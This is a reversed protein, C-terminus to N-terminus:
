EFRQKSVKIAMRVRLEYDSIHDIESDSVFTSKVKKEFDCFTGLFRAPNGGVVSGDSVDRTVVSGAAVVCNNGISVGPLIIANVGVFVNSGISVSKYNQYRKGRFDKVLATSGDHTLIRVGSTITVNDGISILFPETGLQFIYIRCGVGVRVGRKRASAVGGYVLFYLYEIARRLLSYARRM